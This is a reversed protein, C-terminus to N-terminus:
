HGGKAAAAAQEANRFRGHPEPELCRCIVEATSAEVGAAALTAGDPGKMMKELYRDPESRATVGSELFPHAGTALVYATVGLQFLDTRRDPITNPLFQEPAAFEPTRPGLYGPETVRLKAPAFAIGFDILVVRDGSVAINDPKIDRHIWGRRHLAALADLMQDLFDAVGQGLFKAALAPDALTGDFKPELYWLHHAGDIEAVAPGDLLKVIGDHIDDSIAELERNIREVDAATLTEGGTEPETDVPTKYIKLVRAAGGETVFYVEKFGGAPPHPPTFEFQPFAAKISELNMGSTERKRLKSM